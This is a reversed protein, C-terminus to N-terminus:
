RCQAVMLLDAAEATASGGCRVSAVVGMSGALPRQLGSRGLDVSSFGGALNRGCRVMGGRGLMEASAGRWRGSCGVWGASLWAAADRGVAADGTVRAAGVVAHGVGASVGDLGDLWGLGLAAM